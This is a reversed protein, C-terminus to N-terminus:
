RYEPRHASPPPPQTGSRFRSGAACERRPGISEGAAAGLGFGRRYASPLPAGPCAGRKAIAVAGCRSTGMWENSFSRNASNKPLDDLENLEEVFEQQLGRRFAPQM